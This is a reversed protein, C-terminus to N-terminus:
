ELANKLQNSINLMQKTWNEDMPDFQIIAAGIDKAISEAFEMNFQKQVFVVKINKARATNVISKIHEPSPNKGENEIAIQVLGYDQAFYTLAPHFIMFHTTKVAKLQQRIVHDISDIERLFIKYNNEFILKQDPKIQCIEEFIKESM